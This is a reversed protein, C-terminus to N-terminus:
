MKYIVSAATGTGSLEVFIDTDFDLGMSFSASAPSGGAITNARFLIAGAAGGDRLIATGALSGQSIFIASVTGPVVTVAGSATFYGGTFGSGGPRAPM